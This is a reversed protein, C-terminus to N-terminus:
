QGLALSARDILVNTKLIISYYVPEFYHLLNCPFYLAHYLLGHSSQYSPHKLMM